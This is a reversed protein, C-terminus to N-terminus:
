AIFKRLESSALKVADYSGFRRVYFEDRLFDELM